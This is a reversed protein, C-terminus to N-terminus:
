LDIAQRVVRLVFDDRRQQTRIQAPQDLDGPPFLRLENRFMGIFLRRPDLPSHEGAQKFPRVTKPEAGCGSSAIARANGYMKFVILTFISRMPRIDEHQNSAFISPSDPVYEEFAVPLKFHPTAKALYKLGFLSACGVVVFILSSFHFLRFRISDDYNQKKEQNCSQDEP